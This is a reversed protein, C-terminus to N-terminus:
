RPKRLIPSVVARKTSCGSRSRPIACGPRAYATFRESQNAGVEVPVAFATPTGDDDAVVLHMQGKFRENGARLQVWVPTWTGIKFSNSAGKMSLSSDFGVRVNEVEIGRATRQALTVPAARHLVVLAAAVVLIVRCSSAHPTQAACTPKLSSSQNM